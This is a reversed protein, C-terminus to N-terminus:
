RPYYIGVYKARSDSTDIGARLNAPDPTMPSRVILSYRESPISFLRYIGRDDTRTSSGAQLNKQGNEDYVPRAVLVEMGEVPDGDGSIVRGQIYGTNAPPVRQIVFVPLLLFLAARHVKMMEDTM